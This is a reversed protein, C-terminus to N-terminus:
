CALCLGNSILMSLVEWAAQRPSKEVKPMIARYDGRAFRFASIFYGMGCLDALLRTALKGRPQPYDGLGFLQYSSTTEVQSNAMTETKVLRNESDYTFTQWRM